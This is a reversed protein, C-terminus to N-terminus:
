CVGTLGFFPPGRAHNRFGGIFDDFGVSVLEVRGNDVVATEVAFQLGGMEEDEM